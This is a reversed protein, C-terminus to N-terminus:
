RRADMLGCYPDIPSEGKFDSKGILKAVFAEIVAEHNDYANIYTKVMPVDMLHYPNGPERIHDASRRRVM